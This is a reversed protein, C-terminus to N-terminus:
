SNESEGAPAFPRSGPTAQKSPNQAPEPVPCGSGEGYIFIGHVIYVCLVFVCLSWWPYGGGIALLAASRVSAARRHDRHRRGWTNGSILSFGGTLQILGLVILVWGLTDLNTFVLRSTTSWSTRTTWRASAM